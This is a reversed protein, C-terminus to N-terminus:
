CAKKENARQSQLQQHLELNGKRLSRLWVLAAVILIIMTADVTDLLPMAVHLTQQFM